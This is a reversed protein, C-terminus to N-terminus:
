CLDPESKDKSNAMYGQKNQRTTQHECRLDLTTLTTNFKLAVSLARVGENGIKNVKKTM